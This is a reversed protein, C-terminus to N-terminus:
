MYLSLEYDEEKKINMNEFAKSLDTMNIEKSDINNNFIRLCQTYKIENVLKEIDGGFYKFSKLNEKFFNILDNNKINTTYKCEYIKQLFIDKMEEANYGKIKFHSHFRRKMGKNYSLLCNEIDDEYGAIIFMFEGKRESLYQNIMDIAEKSYSDRKDSSGLSYAEDLFLVGGMASELLEKTKPATQGLYEGVLDNRKIEIFKDTKLIGLRVFLQAYLKAIETKGVGAPGSIITHLYENNHKNKVYYIIKKFIESKIDKLGIMKDLKSLVPTLYQLKYLIQNHRIQKWVPTLKMIDKINNISKIINDIQDENYSETNLKFVTNITKNHLSNHIVTNDTNKQKLTPLICRIYLEQHLIKNEENLKQNYDILNNNDITLLNNKNLLENNKNTLNYNFIKLNQNDNLINNYQDFNCLSLISLNQTMLKNLENNYNSM